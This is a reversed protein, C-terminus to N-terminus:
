TSAFSVGGVVWKQAMLEQYYAERLMWDDETLPRGRGGGLGRTEQFELGLEIQVRKVLSYPLIHQLFLTAKNASVRWCYVPKTKGGSKQIDGGFQQCLLELPGKDQNTLCVYLTYSPNPKHHRAGSDKRIGVYGEGDFFGAVWEPSM